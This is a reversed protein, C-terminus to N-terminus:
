SITHLRHMNAPRSRELIERDRPSLRIADSDDPDEEWSVIRDSGDPGFLHMTGFRQLMVAPIGLAGTITALRSAHAEQDPDGDEVMLQYPYPFDDSDEYNRPWVVKIAQDRYAQQTQEDLFWGTAVASEPVGYAMSTARALADPAPPQEFYIDTVWTKM